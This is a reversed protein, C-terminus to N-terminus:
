FFNKGENTDVTETSENDSNDKKSSYLMKIAVKDPFDLSNNKLESNPFEQGAFPNM